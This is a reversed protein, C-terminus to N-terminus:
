WSISTRSHQFFGSTSMWYKWFGPVLLTRLRVRIQAAPLHCLVTQATLTPVQPCPHARPAASLLAGWSAGNIGVQWNLSPHLSPHLVGQTYPLSFVGLLVRPCLWAWTGTGTSLVNGAASCPCLCGGFGQIHSLQGQLLSQTGPYAGASGPLAPFPVPCSRPERPCEPDMQLLRQLEQTGKVALPASGAGPARSNEWGASCLCHTNKLTQHTACISSTTSQSFQPAPACQFQQRLCVATKTSQEAM